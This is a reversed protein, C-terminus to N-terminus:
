RDSLVDGVDIVRAGGGLNVGNFENGVMFENLVMFLNRVMLEDRVMDRMNMELIVCFSM